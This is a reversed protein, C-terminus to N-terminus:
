DEDYNVLRGVANGGSLTVQVGCTAKQTVFVEAGVNWLRKIVKPSPTDPGELSSTSIVAIQPRVTYIFRESSADDAGHHSVKLVLESRIAQVSLLDAEEEVEMDGTLLM